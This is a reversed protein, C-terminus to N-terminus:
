ENPDGDKIDYCTYYELIITYRKIFPLYLYVSIYHFYLVNIFFDKQTNILM